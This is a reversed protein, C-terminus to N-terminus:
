NKLIKLLRPIIQKAIILNNSNEIFIEVNNKNKVFLKNIVQAIKSASSNKITFTKFIFEGPSDLIKIIKQLKDLNQSHHLSLLITLTM